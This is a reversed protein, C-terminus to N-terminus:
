QPSLALITADVLPPGAAITAACDGAGATAAGSNDPASEGPPRLLERGTRTEAAYSWLGEMRDGRLCYAITGPARGMAYGVVMINGLRVGNGVYSDTPTYWHFYYTEGRPDIMVHGRYHSGGGPNEGLMVDFRGELNSSGILDERGPPLNSAGAPMWVGQMRGGDIRYVVIGLGEFTEEQPWFVAGLVGDVQLGLGRYRGGDELNWELAFARGSPAVLAAGAQTAGDASIREVRYGGTPDALAGSGVLCLLAVAIWRAVSLRAM